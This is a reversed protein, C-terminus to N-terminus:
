TGPKGPGKLPNALPISTGGLPGSHFVASGAKREPDPPLAEGHKAILDYIRPRFREMKEKKGYATPHAANTLVVGIVDTSLDIWVSTGTFGTHGV